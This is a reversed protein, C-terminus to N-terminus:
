AAQEGLAARKRFLDALEAAFIEGDFRQAITRQANRGLRAALDPDEQLRQLANALECPDEPPALMGNIGHQILEPIGSVPTTIVPLGVAMAEILVNPIGDRDGNDLIRCPLCFVSARRFEEFVQSQPMPGPLHIFDELHHESILGRIKPEHEGSEAVITLDFSIGRQRLIACAETLIDFGKKPILRGVALIRLDAPASRSGSHQKLFNTFDTSLGHYVCHVPTRSGLQELYERNADTCTVVFEAADMKRRLLGAPNLSPLYIDKAHATFSFPIGTMLSALWAITTAGHCYHAHIHVIDRSQRLQDALIAAQLFEKLYVKRPWAWFERRARVAQAFAARVAKAIGAPRQRLVRRLPPLFDSLHLALWKFLPIASLSATAPMYFRKAEILDATECRVSEEPPKVIYLRLRLGQRELRYIESTIFTDTLRPFGKLVYAITGEVAQATGTGPERM